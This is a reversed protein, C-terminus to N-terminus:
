FYTAAGAAGRVTVGWFTIKNSDDDGTPYIGRLQCFERARSYCLVLVTVARAAVQGRKLAKSSSFVPHPSFFYLLLGFKIIFRPASDWGPSIRRGPAVFAPVPFKQCSSSNPHEEEGLQPFNQHNQQLNSIRSYSLSLTSTHSHEGLTWFFKRGKSSSKHNKPDNMM